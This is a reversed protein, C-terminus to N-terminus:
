DGTGKQRQSSKPVGLFSLVYQRTSEEQQNKPHELLRLFLRMAQELRAPVEILVVPQAAAKTKAEPDLHARVAPSLSQILNRLADEIIRWKPRGLIQSLAVLARRTSPRIPTNFTPWDSIKEGPEASPRGRPKEGMIHIMTGQM